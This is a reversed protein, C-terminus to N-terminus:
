QVEEAVIADVQELFGPTEILKLVAPQNLLEMVEPRELEKKHALKQYSESEMLQDISEKFDPSEALSALSPHQLMRPVFEPDQLVTVFQHIKAFGNLGSFLEFPNYKEVLSGVASERTKEDVILVASTVDRVSELSDDEAAVTQLQANQSQYLPAISQVGGLVFLIAVASKLGGFVFGVWHNGRSWTPRAEFIFKLIVSAIVGVVFAILIGITGISIMRNLVGTTSFWDTFLTEKAVGLGPAFKVATVIGILSGLIHSFGFSFGVLSGIAVLVTAVLAVYDNQKAFLYCAVGVALLLVILVSMPLKVKQRGNMLRRSAAEVQRHERSLYKSSWM